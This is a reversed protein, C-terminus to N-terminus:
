KELSFENRNQSVIDVMKYVSSNAIEKNPRIKNKPKRKPVSFLNLHKMHEQDHFFEKLNYKLRSKYHDEHM